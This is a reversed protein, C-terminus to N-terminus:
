HVAPWRLDERAGLMNAFRGAAPGDIINPKGLYPKGHEPRIIERFMLRSAEGDSTEIILAERRMPHDDISTVSPYTDHDLTWVETAHAYRVVGNQAFMERLGADATEKSEARGDHDVGFMMQEGAANEVLWMHPVGGADEFIREVVRAMRRLFADLSITM